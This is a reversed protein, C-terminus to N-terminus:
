RAVEFLLSDTPLARLSSPRPRSPLGISEPSWESWDIAQPHIELEFVLEALSAIEEAELELVDQYVADTLTKRDAEIALQNARLRELLRGMTERTWRRQM